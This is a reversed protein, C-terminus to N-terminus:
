GAGGTCLRRERTGRIIRMTSNATPAPSSNRWPSTGAPELGNGARSRPWALGQSTSQRRDAKFCLGSSQRRTSTAGVDLGLRDGVARHAVAAAPDVAHAHRRRAAHMGAEVLDGALRGGRQRQPELVVHLWPAPCARGARSRSGSSRCKRRGCCRRCDARSSMRLSCALALANSMPPKVSASPRCIPTRPWQCPVPGLRAEQARHVRTGAAIEVHHQARSCRRAGCDSGGRDRGIRASCTRCALERM